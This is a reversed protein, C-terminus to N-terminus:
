QVREKAKLYQGRIAWAIQAIFLTIFIGLSVYRGFVEGFIEKSLWIIGIPVYRLILYGAGILIAVGIVLCIFELSERGITKIMEAIIKKKM